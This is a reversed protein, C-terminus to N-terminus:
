GRTFDDGKGWEFDGGSDILAVGGGVGEGAGAEIGRELVESARDRDHGLLL